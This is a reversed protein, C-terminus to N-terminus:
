QSAEAPTIANRVGEIPQRGIHPEGNAKNTVNGTSSPNTGSIRAREVAQRNLEAPSANFFRNEGIPLEIIKGPEAESSQRLGESPEPSAPQELTVGRNLRAGLRNIADMVRAKDKLVPVFIVVRRNANRGEEYDNDDVPRFEGFGTASLREPDIGLGVFLQVVSAARAASLEWNSPYLPSKIPRDDTYGQVNVEHPFPMLVQALKTMTPKAKESLVAEGSAFLISSSIEIEVGNENTNVKILGKDSIEAVSARLGDFLIQLPKDGARTKSVGASAASRDVVVPRKIFEISQPDGSRVPDGVQIPDLTKANVSFAKTMSESLVRYKGENVSSIAYMVVFFAFLLTIFDAYSVMWRDHNQQSESQRKRRQM